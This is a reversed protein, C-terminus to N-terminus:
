GFIVQNKTTAQQGVLFELQDSRPIFELKAGGANSNM